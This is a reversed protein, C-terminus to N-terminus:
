NFLQPCDKICNESALSIRPAKCEQTNKHRIISFGPEEPQVPARSFKALCAQRAYAEFGQRMPDSEELYDKGEYHNLGIGGKQPSSQWIRFNFNARSVSECGSIGAVGKVGLPDRGMEGIMLVHGNIAAIDGPELTHEPTLTIKEFCDLGNAKPDMFMRSNIGLVNRARLPVHPRFRLGGTAVASFVAASCDIGLSPSGSGENTFLDMVHQSGDIAFPRGGYDYILPALRFDQCHPGPTQDQYYYHTKLVDPLNQVTRVRGIQDPHRGTESVGIIDPNDRTLPPKQLAQCNQYATAFLWRMGMYARQNEFHGIRKEFDDKQSAPEREAFCDVPNELKSLQAFKEYIAKKLERRGPTSEDGVEMAAFFMRLHDSDISEEPDATKLLVEYLETWALATKASIVGRFKLNAIKTKLVNRDPLQREQVLFQDLSDWFRTQFDKCSMDLRQQEIIAKEQVVIKPTCSFLLAAPLWLGMM